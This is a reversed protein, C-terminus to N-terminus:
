NQGRTSPFSLLAITPTVGQQESHISATSLDRHKLHMTGLEGEYVLSKRLYHALHPQGARFGRGSPVRLLTPSASPSAWADPKLPIAV